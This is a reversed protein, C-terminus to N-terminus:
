SNVESATPCTPPHSGVSSSWDRYPVRPAWEPGAPGTPTRSPLRDQHSRLCACASGFTEGRQWEATPPPDTSRGPGARSPVPRRPPLTPDTPQINFVNSQVGVVGWVVASVRLTITHGAALAQLGILCPVRAESRNESVPFDM